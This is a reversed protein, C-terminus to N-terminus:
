FNYKSCAIKQFISKKFHSKQSFHSKSFTIKIFFTIKSIHNKHFNLNQFHSNTFFSIKFIHNKYLIRNQFHSKKSFNAEYFTIKTFFSIKFIHNKHIKPSKSCILKQILHPNQGLTIKKLKPWKQRSFELIIFKSPCGAFLVFFNNQLFSM